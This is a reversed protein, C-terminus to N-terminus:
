SKVITLDILDGLERDKSAPYWRGTGSAPFFTVEGFYTKGNVSYFDVRLFPLGASLKKALNVMEDFNTPKEVHITPDSPYDTEGFDQLEWNLNYYNARHGHFRNLDVKFFKPEGGFCFFKYDKLDEGSGDDLLIEAFIKKEVNKYPWEKNYKWYNEDFGVRLRCIASKYDWVSKDKCLSIGVGSNHNPKLIFSDPLSNVDIEEPSNWTAITPIIYEEGIISAAWEKAKLKDVMTSFIPQRNYLKLWQMKESFTKPQKLNLPSGFKILFHLKLYWADSLIGNSLRLLRFLIRKFLKQSM